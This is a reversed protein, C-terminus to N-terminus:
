FGDFATVSGAAGADIDDGDARAGAGATLTAGIGLAAPGAPAPAGVNAILPARRGSGPPSFGVNVKPANTAPLAFWSARAAPRCTASWGVDYLGSNTYPPTPRPLVCRIWAIPLWIRDCFGAAFIRYM